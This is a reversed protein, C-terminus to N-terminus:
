PILIKNPLALRSNTVPLGGSDAIQARIAQGNRLHYLGVYVTYEGRALQDLDIEVEDAVIEGTLWQSTPYTNHRPMGDHQAVIVGSADEVHVFHYLDEQALNDASWYLTLNLKDDEHDLDYGALGIVGGSDPQAFSATLKSVGDPLEFVPEPPTFLLHGEQWTLQGLLRTLLVEGSSIDYLRAVLDFPGSGAVARAEESWNLGIWDDVWQGAPWDSSPLFGFGPQADQQAVELGSSDVVRLSYNYNESLLERTLWQMQVDLVRENRMAAGLARADLRAPGVAAAEPRDRLLLPRLFLAGRTLGSPTLPQAGDVVLRPVVLGAPANDPVALEYTVAGDRIEKIEQAFVPAKPSRNAAPTVLELRAQGAAEGAWHVTVPLSEGAMVEEAGYQYSVLRTGNEFNIGEGAHHLYAMQAFDWNLDDQGGDNDPWAWLVLLFLALGAVLILARGGPRWGEVGTVVLWACLALGVLATIEGALRVPTRALKLEVQHEGPSLQLTILDSGPAPEIDVADGDVRAVWGPWDMTPLSITTGDEAAVISWQQSATRVDIPEIALAEGQLVRGAHRQGGNLWQSTQPRPQVTAPLYEASVTTGINGSYWEYEALKVATVDEDGLDLFDLQLGLLASVLLLGIAVPVIVRRWPLLALGGTALAGFFAQVSLFRWPFQTFSLLPLNDWLWRSLSTTMFAALLLGSVIFLRRGKGIGNAPRRGYVLLAATGLLIGLAQVLGMSFVRGGGTDYDFIFSRQVLNSDRFHNSYHFYGKTVPDLQVLSSEALAPLWFWSALALALLFALGLWVLQRGPTSRPGHHDNTSGTEVAAQAAPASKDNAWVRFVLYLLLFPTFILASINHSLILAAYILALLAAGMRRSKKGKQNGNTMAATLRDVGLVVLPYFAMAWFEALSDGRVYVNVMHFPALTYAVAALLAAWQSGFWRRALLFMGWAAVVFGALQAGKAALVYGAGLFRFAAAIYISLPAYYNYFPYGYGYNADPMWRVPFHGDTLATTLQQLRQLLFPSDGGGRTNLLGANSFLPAAALLAIFLAAALFLTRAAPRSPKRSM